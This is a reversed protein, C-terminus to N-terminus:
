NELRIYYVAGCRMEHLGRVGATQTVIQLVDWRLAVWMIGAEYTM